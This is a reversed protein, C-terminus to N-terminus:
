ACSNAQACMHIHIYVTCLVLSLFLQQYSTSLSVERLLGWFAKFKLKTSINKYPHHNHHQRFISLTWAPDDSISWNHKTRIKDKTM